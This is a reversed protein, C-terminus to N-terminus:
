LLPGQTYPQASPNIKRAAPTECGQIHVQVQGQSGFTRLSSLPLESDAVRVTADELSALGRPLDSDRGTQVMHLKLALDQGEGKESSRM